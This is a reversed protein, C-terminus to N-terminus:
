GRCAENIQRPSNQTDTNFESLGVSSGAALSPSQGARRGM